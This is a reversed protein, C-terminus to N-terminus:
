RVRGVPAERACREFLLLVTSPTTVSSEPTTVLTVTLPWGAVSVSAVPERRSMGINV